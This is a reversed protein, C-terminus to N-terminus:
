PLRQVKEIAALRQRDLQEGIAKGQYGQAIIAQADIAKAADMLKQLHNLHQYPKDAFGSRGRYDCDCAQMFQEAMEPRRWVDLAKLLALVEDSGLQYIRHMHSHWTAVLLALRQWAKPVRLRESLANIPPLGRAEHGPHRPWDAQPTLGKGFDHCLVAYRVGANYGQQCAVRIAQSVHIATDVEPHYYQTQPVGFLADVEPFWQQLAGCQRLVLFFPWPDNSMLAKSFENQVREATLENLMGSATMQKMLAMTEPAVTFGFSQLRAAFQAVRFVRLPDESFAPSVHRLLRAQLDKQGGFPDILQGGQREAMANITLDRRALDQEVSISPSFDCIFGTHGSGQRRETRALAYEEHSDPHLFVPFDKGVQQFGQALMVEPTSGVVLWDRDKVTVGLLGDRVAGGVLYTQM